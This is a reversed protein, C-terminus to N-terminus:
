VLWTSYRVSHNTRINHDLSVNKSGFLPFHPNPSGEKVTRSFVILSYRPIINKNMRTDMLCRELKYSHWWSGRMLSYWIILFWSGSFFDKIQYKLNGLLTWSKHENNHGFKQQFPSLPHWKFVCFSDFTRSHSSKYM